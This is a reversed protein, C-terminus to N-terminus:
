PVWALSCLYVRLGIRDCVCVCLSLLNRDHLHFTKSCLSAPLVKHCKHGWSCIPIVISGNQLWFLSTCTLCVSQQPPLLIMASLIWQKTPCAQTWAQLYIKKYNKFAEMVSRNTNREQRRYALPNQMKKFNKKLHICCINCRNEEKYNKREIIKKKCPIIKAFTDRALSFSVSCGPLLMLDLAKECIGNWSKLFSNWWKILFYWSESSAWQYNRPLAM